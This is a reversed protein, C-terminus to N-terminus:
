TRIGNLLFDYVDFNRVEGRRARDAYRPSLPASVLFPIRQDSLGGHSRLRRGKLGSLDHATESSGLVVHKTSVVTFDGEYEPPTAFRRAAEAGTLVLEVGALRRTTEMMAHLQESGGKVYVRVFSGLAGHHRVFPDTIPCIVRTAGSGFRKNLVDELWIVNPSGDPKSKDNMGHDGTVGVTAGLDVLRGIRQDIGALFADAEPERPAYTHMVVDSLSLYILDASRRELLRAGADLVFYSLDASYQDPTRRGVMGEVDDIGANAMTAKDAHQASFAIGRLNHRIIERLKDKATVGASKVGAQSMLGLITECRLVSADTIMTEKGTARDLYYNGSIGHVAPEVGTLISTNNPNTFSPMVGRATTAFGRSQFRALNPLIGDRLGNELYTPDFGDICIAVTPRRPREYSRGNVTVPAQTSASATRPIGPIAAAAVLSGLIQRRTHLTM